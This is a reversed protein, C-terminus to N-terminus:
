WSKFMCARIPLRRDPGIKQEDGGGEEIRGRGKLLRARTSIFARLTHRAPRDCPSRSCGAEAILRRELGCQARSWNLPFLREVQPRSSVLNAM